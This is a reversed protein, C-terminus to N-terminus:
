SAVVIRNSLIPWKGRRLIEEQAMQKGFYSTARGHLILGDPTREISLDRLYSRHLSRITSEIEGLGDAPNDIVAKEALPHM